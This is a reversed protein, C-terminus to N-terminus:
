PTMTTTAAGRTAAAMRAPGRLGHLARRAPLFLRSLGAGIHRAAFIHPKIRQLMSLQRHMSSINNGQIFLRVCNYWVLVAGM